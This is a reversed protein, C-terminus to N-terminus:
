PLSCWPSTAIGSPRRWGNPGVKECTPCQEEFFFLVVGKDKLQDLSLPPCNIWQQPNSPLETLEGSTRYWTPKAPPAPSDQEQGIALNATLVIALATVLSCRTM